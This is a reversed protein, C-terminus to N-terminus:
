KLLWVRGSATNNASPCAVFIAHIKAETTDIDAKDGVNLPAQRYAAPTIDNLFVYVPDPGDNFITARFYPPKTRTPQIAIANVGQVTFAVEDKFGKPVQADLSEAVRRITRSIDDLLAVEIPAKVRVLEERADKKKQIL